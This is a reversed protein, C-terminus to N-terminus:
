QLQKLLEIKNSVQLKEYVNRIHTEVTRLSIFITEAIVKNTKGEMLLLTIEVERKTLGADRCKTEFTNVVPALTTEEHSIPNGKRKM